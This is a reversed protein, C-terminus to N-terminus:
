SGEEGEIPDKVFRNDFEGDFDIRCEDYEGFRYRNKAVVHYFGDRVFRPTLLGVNGFIPFWPGNLGRAINLIADSETHASGDAMCLVISSIDDAERGSRRLLSQGVKSQLSVFRFAGKPDHDIAFNVGGNCLNCQGDFLIIPRKDDKFVDKSIKKWDSTESSTAAKSPQTSTPNTTTGVLMAFLRLRSRSSKIQFAHNM